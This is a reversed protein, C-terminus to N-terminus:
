VASALEMSAPPCPNSGRNEPGFGSTRGNSSGGAPSRLITACSAGAAVAGPARALIVSAVIRGAENRAVLFQGQRMMEAMRIEDTRTGELFTEVAFAANVVPIM